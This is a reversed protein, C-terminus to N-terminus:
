SAYAISRVDTCTTSSRLNICERAIKDAHCWYSTSPSCSRLFSAEQHRKMRSYINRQMFDHTFCCSLLYSIENRNWLPKTMHFLATIRALIVNKMQGIPMVTSRLNQFDSMSKISSSNDFNLDRFQRIFQNWPRNKRSSKKLTRM